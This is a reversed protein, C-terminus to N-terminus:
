KKLILYFDAVNIGTKGTKIQTGMKKFFNYSDNNLLYEESDIGTENIKDLLIDDALAGAADTNDWGDSAVAAILTNEPLKAVAGLVFEQNRGGEGKGNVQTTMEGGWIHCSKPLINESLLKGSLEKAEGQLDTTEIYADYGLDEAKKQMEELAVNNTVLLINDVEQFYKQEKPTEKLFSIMEKGISIQELGFYSELVIQADEKTTEDMVTPGSAIMSINDGPVDSFILSVLKAPYALQAFQGGKIQSLHKRVINIEGITAGKVMLSQTIKKLSEDDVGMVPACLLASGGGSVITLILDNKGAKELIEVISKTALINEKSPLPHSGVKSKLKKFKDKKVDLVVGDTIKDGLINEFIRASQNACKGIAIFFIKKYKKLNYKKNKIKLVDEQLSVNKLIIKDTLVAQYGAELIDLADQRFSNTALDKINKIITTKM